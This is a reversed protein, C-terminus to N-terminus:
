EGGGLAHVYLTLSKITAPDLKKGWAPMVGHHPNTVQAVVEDRTGPYLHIHSALPAAGVDRNGQGKDGHCPACNDAFIQAGPAPNAGAVPTGYLTMVYDAVQQIQDPKLVGDKGFAPMQSQHTDPDDTSRIGHTITQQIQAVTGGWLWVDDGLAPYGIRGEGGPGHCPQCNIGFTIRGANQAMTLLEPDKRIDDFSLAAIRDMFVARQAAINAVARDVQARPSYGLLGTTHTGWLPIAPMLVFMGLAFVITAMFTYFWWNPLPTNLERLGDWEHGTTTRGTVPDVDPNTAM